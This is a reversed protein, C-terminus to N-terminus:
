IKEHNKSFGPNLWHQRVKAGTYSIAIKNFWLLILIAIYFPDDNAFLMAVFTLPYNVLVASGNFSSQLKLCSPSGTFAGIIGLLPGFLTMGPLVFLFPIGLVYVNSLPTISHFCLIASLLLDIAVVIAFALFYPYRSGKKPPM